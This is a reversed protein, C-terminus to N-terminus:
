ESSSVQYIAWVECKAAHSDEPFKTRLLDRVELARDLDPLLGNTAIDSSFFNEEDTGWNTVLSVGGYEDIIDFGLLNAQPVYGKEIASEVGVLDPDDFRALIKKAFPLNTILSLKFDENVCNAWDEESEPSFVDPRLIGDLSDFRTLHTFGRWHAYEDWRTGSAPGFKEILKYYVNTGLTREATDFHCKRALLNM